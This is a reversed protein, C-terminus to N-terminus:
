WWKVIEKFRIFLERQSVVIFVVMYIFGLAFATTVFSTWAGMYGFVGLYKSVDLPRALPVSMEQIQNYISTLWALVPSFITDILARM